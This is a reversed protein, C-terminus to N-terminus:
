EPSVPSGDPKLITAQVIMFLLRSGKGKGGADVGKKLGGLLLAQGSYLTVATQVKRTSFIPQVPEDKPFINAPPNFFDKLGERNWTVPQGNLKVFGTLEVLEPALDLDITTGDPNVTPEVEITIGVNRTEFATPILGQPSNKEPLYETAYPYERVTRVIAKRGSRTVIKPASLTEAEKTKDLDTLLKSIQEQNFVGQLSFLDPPVAGISNDEAKRGISGALSQGFDAGFNKETIQKWAEESVELYKTRIEVSMKEPEPTPPPSQAPLQSSWPAAMLALAAHIIRFCKM